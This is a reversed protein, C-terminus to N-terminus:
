IEGELEEDAEYFEIAAGPALTVVAKKWSSRRGMVKGVRKPKSPMRLTNVSVVPAGNEKRDWDSFFLAEIAQRIQIKNAQDSVRFVVKNLQDRQVTTKETVVPRGLIGYLIRDNM